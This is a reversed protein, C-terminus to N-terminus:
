VILSQHNVAFRGLHQAADLRRTVGREVPNGQAGQDGLHGLLMTVNRGYRRIQCLMNEGM